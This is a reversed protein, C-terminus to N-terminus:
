QVVVPEGCQLQDWVDPWAARIDTGVGNSLVIKAGVSEAWARWAARDGRQDIGPLVIALQRSYCGVDPPQLSSQEGSEQLGARSPLSGAAGAAPWEDKSADGLEPKVDLSPVSGIPHILVVKQAVGATQEDLREAQRGFLVVAKASLDPRASIDIARVPSHVVMYGPSGSDEIWRRIEKGPTRGLVEADPWVHWIRQAEEGERRVLVAGDSVPEIRLPRQKVWEMGLAFLGVPCALGALAGVGLTARWRFRRVRWAAFAVVLVAFSPVIWLRWDIWLTSFVNAVAWAFLSAGAVAALRSEWGESERGLLVALTLVGAGMGVIIALALLGHEVGVHLFSNVMTAYGETRDVPQFWNMYARGSEGDGWGLLPASAMMVTGREWLELRNLASEDDLTYAPTVRGVFGTALLLVAITAARLSVRLFAPWVIECRGIFRVGMFVCAGAVAALLGGRSYTKCLAFWLVMEALLVAAGIFRHHRTGWKISCVWCLPLLTALWAGAFNPTPWGLNWRELGRFFFDSEVTM